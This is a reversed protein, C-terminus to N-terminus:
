FAWQRGSPNAGFTNSGGQCLASVLLGAERWKRYKGGPKTETIIGPTKKRDLYTREGDGHWMRKRTQQNTQKRIKKMSFRRLGGSPTGNGPKRSGGSLLARLVERPRLKGPAVKLM